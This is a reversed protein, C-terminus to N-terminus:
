ESALSELFSICKENYDNRAEKNGEYTGGLMFHENFTHGANEYAIHEYSFKFDNDRLRKMIMESMMSSPWLKDDKGSFLLIPGNINEVAITAKEVAKKNELSLQYIELFEHNKVSTFDYKVYPVFPISEGKNSWSSQMGGISQFVVSSPVKAIVGQIEQYKSALLLALEAGKSVGIVVIKKNQIEPLAKYYSLVKEFYELPIMELMKPTNETGFYAVELLSFGRSTYFDSDSNPYGGESGGLMLIAVNKSEEQAPFYKTDITISDQALLFSFHLVLLNIIVIKQINM